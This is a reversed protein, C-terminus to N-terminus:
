ILTVSNTWPAPCKKLFTWPYESHFVSSTSVTSLDGDSGHEEEAFKIKM